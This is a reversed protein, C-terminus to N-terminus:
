ELKRYPRLLRRLHADLRRIAVSRAHVAGLAESCGPPPSIRASRCGITGEEGAAWCAMVALAAADWGAPNPGGFWGDGEAGMPLDSGALRVELRFPWEGRLQLEIRRSPEVQGTRRLASELDADGRFALAVGPPIGQLVSRVDHLHAELEQLPVRERLRGGVADAYLLWAFGPGALSVRVQLIGSLRPNPGAREGPTICLDPANPDAHLRRPRALFRDLPFRRLATPTALYVAGGLEVATPLAPPAQPHGPRAAALLAAVQTLRTSVATAGPSAPLVELEFGAAASRLFAEVAEEATVTRATPRRGPVLRVLLAAPFALQRSPGRNLPDLPPETGTAEGVVLLLAPRTRPRALRAALAKWQADLGALPPSGGAEAALALARVRAQLPTAGHALVSQGVPVDFGRGARVPEIVVRPAGAAQIGEALAGLLARPIGAAMTGRWRPSGRLPPSRRVARLFALSLRGGIRLLEGLDPRRPAPRQLARALGVRRAPPPHVLRLAAELESAVDSALGAWAVAAVDPAALAQASLGRALAWEIAAVPPPVNPAALLGTALAGLPSPARELIWAVEEAPVRVAWSRQLAAWTVDTLRGAILSGFLFTRAAQGAACFARPDLVTVTHAIGAKAVIASAHGVRTTLRQRAGPGLGAAELLVLELGTAGPFAIVAEVLCEDRQISSPPPLGFASGRRTWSPSFRLGTVGPPDDELPTRPYRGHLLIPFVRAAAATRADLQRQLGHARWRLMAEAQRGLDTAPPQIQSAAAGNGM